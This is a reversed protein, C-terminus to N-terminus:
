LLMTVDNTGNIDKWYAFRPGPRYSKLGAIQLAVKDLEYGKELNIVTPQKSLGRRVWSRIISMVITAILQALTATYHLGRLGIFQLPFGVTCLLTGVFVWFNLSSVDRPSDRRYSGWIARFEGPATNKDDPRFIAYSPFSEGTQSQQVWMLQLRRKEEKAREAPIWIVEETSREIARACSLVGLCVMILGGCALPFAYDEVITGDKEWKFYYNVLAQFAVVGSQVLVGV